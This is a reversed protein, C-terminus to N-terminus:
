FLGSEPDIKKVALNAAILMICGLTNQLLSVAASYEYNNNEMLAKHVYVDLTQTVDIISNSDRTVQYFLGFDTSFINGVNLIFMISIVPRLLPITIGKCQQWKSAGDIVASEYLSQDIGTITAMYVVMSYGFTKWTNIFVLIFPWYKAEQYWMIREGGFAVILNNLLGKDTSLFAYVFYSIVVWSLFHPLFVATQCVKALKRSRLQTIMIALAVPLTIGIIIFTLNYCITNRFINYIDSSLFLFKFNKLGVWKSNVFLSYIFGKGRKVKYNKFAFVIGFLPVYCFAMFWIVTPLSLLTLEFDDWTFRRKRRKIPAEGKISVTEVRAKRALSNWAM